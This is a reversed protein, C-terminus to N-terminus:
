RYREGTSGPKGQQASLRRYCTRVSINVQAISQHKVRFGFFGHLQEVEHELKKGIITMPCAATVVISVATTTQDAREQMEGTLIAQRRCGRDGEQLIRHWPGAKWKDVEIVGAAATDGFQADNDELGAPEGFINGFPLPRGGRNLVPQECLDLLASCFGHRIDPFPRRAHWERRFAKGSLM